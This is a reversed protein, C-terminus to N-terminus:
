AVKSEATKSEAQAKLLVSRIHAAIAGMEEHSCKDVASLARQLTSKETRAKTEKGEAKALLEKAESDTTASVWQAYVNAKNARKGQNSASIAKTVQSKDVRIKQLTAHTVFADAIDKEINQGKAWAMIDNGIAYWKGRTDATLAHMASAISQVTVTQTNEMTNGKKRMVRVVTAHM